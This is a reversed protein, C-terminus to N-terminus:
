STREFIYTVIYPQLNNHASAANAATNANATQANPSDGVRDLGGYVAGAGSGFRISIPHTHVPVGSESSTLLHTSEGGTAGAAFAQDSTGVGVIVRGTAYAVWTGGFLASPNTSNTSMYISGVPYVALLTAALKTSDSTNDANALGVQSKTVSHPNSTNAAHTAVKYDLSSTDASGDIGVKAAIASVETHVKNHRNAHNNAALTANGDLATFSPLSTPYDAM